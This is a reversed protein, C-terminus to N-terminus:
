IDPAVIPTFLEVDVPSNKVAVPLFPSVPKLLMVMGFLKTGESFMGTTYM